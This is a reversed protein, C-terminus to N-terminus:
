VINYMNKCVKKDVCIKVCTKLCCNEIKLAYVLCGRLVYSKKLAQKFQVFKLKGGDNYQVLVFTSAYTM